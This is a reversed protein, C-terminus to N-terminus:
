LSLTISTLRTTSIRILNCNTTLMIQKHYRLTNMTRLRMSTSNNIHSRGWLSARKFSARKFSARKFSARKLILNITLPNIYYFFYFFPNVGIVLSSPKTAGSTSRSSHASSMAQPARRAGLPARQHSSARDLAAALSTSRFQPARIPLASGQNIM